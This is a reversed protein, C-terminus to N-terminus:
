WDPGEAPGSNWEGSVVADGAQAVSGGHANEGTADAGPVPQKCRKITHGM